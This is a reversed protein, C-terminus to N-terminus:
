STVEARLIAEVNRRIRAQVQSLESPGIGTWGTRRLVSARAARFTLAQGLVTFVLLEVRKSRPNAGIIAAVLRAVLDALPGMMRAYLLDFAPSPAQQERLILRAWPGAEEGALVATFTDTLRLLPPLFRELRTEPTVDIVAIGAVQERIASAVPQLREGLRAAIHEFVAHYLGEKGGFHYGILAQNARAAEAIARTSAADFGDRGFIELAAQILAERTEQGRSSDSPQQPAM